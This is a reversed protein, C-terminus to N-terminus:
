EPPKGQLVRTAKSYIKDIGILTNNHIAKYLKELNAKAEDAKDGGCKESVAFSLMADDVDANAAQDLEWQSRGIYYYAACDKKAKAVRDLYKIAETFRRRNYYNLGIINNCSATADAKEKRWDADSKDDPKKAADISKLTLGAYEAAKDGKKEEWYKYMFLMRLGYQGDFEPCSFLKQAWELHKDKDGLKQYSNTIAAAIGCDPKVAYIKLAYDIYKQDQGVAHASEAIYVITQLDDPYYKLWAEALPLLKAWAESQRRDYMLRQYDTVIYTKLKSKPYKEMFALLLTGRKDLDPEKDAKEYADYEEDTYDPEQEQQAPQAVPKQKPPPQQQARSPLGFTLLGATSIFLILITHFRKM